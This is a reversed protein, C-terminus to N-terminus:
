TTTAPGGRVARALRRRGALARSSGASWSLSAGSAVEVGGHRGLGGLLLAPVELHGGLAVRVLIAGHSMVVLLLALSQGGVEELVTDLPSSISVNPSGIDGLYGVPDLGEGRNGISVHM